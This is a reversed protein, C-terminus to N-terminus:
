SYLSSFFSLLSALVHPKCCVVCMRLAREEKRDDVYASNDVPASSKDPDIDFEPAFDPQGTPLRSVRRHPSDSSPGLQGMQVLHQDPPLFRLFAPYGIIAAFFTFSFYPWHYGYPSFFSGWLPGLFIAISLVFVIIVFIANLISPFNMTSLPTVLIRMTILGVGQLFRLLLSLSIFVYSNGIFGVAGLLASCVLAVSFSIIMLRRRGCRAAFKGLLCGLFLSPACFLSFFLGSFASHLSRRELEAHLFSSPLWLGSFCFFIGLM